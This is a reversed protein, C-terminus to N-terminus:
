VVCGIQLCVNFEKLNIDFNLPSVQININRTGRVAVGGTIWVKKLDCQYETQTNTNINRRGSITLTTAM